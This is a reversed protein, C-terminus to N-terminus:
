SDSTDRVAGSSRVAAARVLSHVAKPDVPKTLHHDFGAAATRARDEARGFGTMAVLLARSGGAQQKLCTAVELGDLKPLAIDLFILDPDARQATQLGSLGDHAVLVEHQERRLMRSLTEAADPNDDVVLIRQRPPRPHSDDEGPTRAPASLAREAEPGTALPL